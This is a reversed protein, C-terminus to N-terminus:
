NETVKRMKRAKTLAAGCIIRSYYLSYNIL